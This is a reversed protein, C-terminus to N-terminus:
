VSHYLRKKAFFGKLLVNHSNKKYYYRFITGIRVNQKRDTYINKALDIEHSNKPFDRTYTIKM